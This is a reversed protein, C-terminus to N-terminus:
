LHKRWNSQRQGPTALCQKKNASTSFILPVPTKGTYNAMAQAATAHCMKLIRRYRFSIKGRVNLEDSLPPLADEPVLAMSMRERHQTFYDVSSYRNIGARVSFYNMNSDGGVATLIGTGVIYARLKDSMTM